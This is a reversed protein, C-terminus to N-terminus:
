SVLLRVDDATAAGIREDVIEGSEDYVRLTPISTVGNARSDYSEVDVYEYDIGV